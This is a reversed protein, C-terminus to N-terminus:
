SLSDLDDTGGETIWSLDAALTPDLRQRALLDLVEARPIAERRRRAPRRLEAVPEGRSTVVYVEGRRVGELVMATHNRLDRAAITPM